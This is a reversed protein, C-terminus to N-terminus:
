ARTIPSQLNVHLSTTATAFGIEQVIYGSTTPATTTVAGPTSGSLYYKSGVTLGTVGTNSEDFYVTASTSILFGAIVFGMAAKAAASADAKFVLGAASIYVMDGASVAEGTTLTVSDAGVGTPLFTVDLKGAADAIIFESASGAGASANLGAYESRVGGSSIQIVKHVAM